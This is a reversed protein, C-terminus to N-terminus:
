EEAALPALGYKEFLLNLAEGIMAQTTRDENVALIKLQKAVAPDYFGSIAKKGVRAIARTSAPAATKKQPPPTAAVPEPAAPTSNLQEDLARRKRPAM